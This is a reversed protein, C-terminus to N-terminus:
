LLRVSLYEQLSDAVNVLLDYRLILKTPTNFTIIQMLKPLRGKCRGFLLYIFLYIIIINKQMNFSRKYLIVISIATNVGHM